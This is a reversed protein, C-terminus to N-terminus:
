AGRSGGKPGRARAGGRLALATAVRTAVAPVRPPRITPLRTQLSQSESNDFAVCKSYSFKFM